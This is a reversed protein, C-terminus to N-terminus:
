KGAFMGHVLPDRLVVGCSRLDDLTWLRDSKLHPQAALTKGDSRVAGCARVIESLEWGDFLEFFNQGTYREPEKLYMRECWVSCLAHKRGGHELIRLNTLGDYFTPMISPMQCVRCIYIPIKGNIFLDVGLAHNAPDDLGDERWSDLVNGIENYYGPYSNEFWELDRDNPLEIRIGTLPWLAWAAAFAYHHAWYADKKADALNKPSEVGFRGLRGLWIGSWDEYVWKDWRKAWPEGKNVTFYDFAVGTFPTIFKHNIWFANELDTQLYRMNDPDDVISVITQYGNAMHRLEDSEISLFITPTIEDGNAAATETLAVILPNTFAAEAVLQLNLSMQVPDGSLAHEVVSARDPGFFPHAYRHKRFDTFGAPDYYQTAFYHSLYGCQTVHRVEDEVQALYGNRQEPSEVADWLAASTGMAGYEGMELFASVIKMVEAWRPEVRNGASLRALSDLLSGFQRSDKEEEMRAYERVTLKFQERTNPNFKYKTPYKSRRTESDWGMHQLWQHVGQPTVKPLAAKVTAEAATLV